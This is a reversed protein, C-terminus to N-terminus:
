AVRIQAGTTADVIASPAPASGVRCDLICDLHDGFEAVVAATTRLPPRGGRNASTSVLASASNRCLARAPPHATVRVALSRHQGCLWRPTWNCAPLLWTHPGPWSALPAALLVPDSLSVLGRLRAVRDAIVILGRTWSRKKLQLIRRVATENHPDCGLGFCYETPYAVGGGNTIARAAVACDDTLSSEM